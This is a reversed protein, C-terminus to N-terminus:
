NLAVAGPPGSGDCFITNRGADKADYLARDAAAVLLGSDADRNPRRSAVGVSVTLVGSPSDAHPIKLAEIAARITEAVAAGGALPTNPLILAFEEGGYRAAFDAARAVTAELVRGVRALVKDGEPHTYRDNYRKFHDVDIMLLTLPQQSRASRWWEARLRLDFARRNAIQTLEDISSLLALRATAEELLLTKQYVETVLPRLIFVAVLLLGLISVAIVVGGVSRTGVAMRETIGVLRTVVHGPQPADQGMTVHQMFRLAPLDVGLARDPTAAVERGADLFSHVRQDLNLPPEFFARRLGPSLLERPAQHVMADHQDSVRELLRRLEQRWTARRVPDKELVLAQAVLTTRDSLYYQRVSRDLIKTQARERQVMADVLLSGLLMV